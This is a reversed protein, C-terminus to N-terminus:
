SAWGLDRLLFKTLKFPASHQRVEEREVDSGEDSCRSECGEWAMTGTHSVM